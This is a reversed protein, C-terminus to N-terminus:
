TVRYSLDLIDFWQDICLCMALCWCHGDMGFPWYRYTCRTGIPGCISSSLRFIGCIGLFALTEVEM